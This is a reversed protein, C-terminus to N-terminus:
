EKEEEIERANLLVLENKNTYSYKLGVKEDVVKLMIKNNGKYKDISQELLTIFTSIRKFGWGEKRHLALAVSSMIVPKMWKRMKAKVGVMYAKQMEWPMSFVKDKQENWKEIGLYVTDKYSEGDPGRFEIRCEEDCLQILSKETGCDGCEKFIGSAVDILRKIRLKGWNYEEKLILCTGFYIVDLEKQAKVTLVDDAKQIRDKM